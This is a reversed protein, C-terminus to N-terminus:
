VHVMMQIQVLSFNVANSDTCGYVFPICSGDDQNALSDYNFAFPDTCGYVPPFHAIIVGKMGQLVHSQCVFYYAQCNDPIFYDSTGYDFNFGGQIPLTDNNLWTTDNVQVANHHISLNFFITDGVECIITDPSFSMSSTQINYSSFNCSGDDINATPDYNLATSNTCGLNNVIIVGVMGALVHSQCVYYYTKALSPIFVGSSGYNFNFGGNSSNGASIFELSDVEVANHNSGLIFNITDGVDCIITDPSFSM